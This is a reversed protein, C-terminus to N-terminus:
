FNNIIGVHIKTERLNFPLDNRKGAAFSINLIGQKTELALGAGYGMYSYNKNIIKNRTFGVDNFVFFYSNPAFLYRYEATGVVYENTFINEEDFGRLLKFGGIQFLENQLYYKSAILGYNASLKLVSQKKIAIYKTANVGVRLLYPKTQLSDYLAAYNYGGSKISTITSNQKINKSGFSAMVGFEFGKLKNIRTGITNNFLYEVGISNNTVDLVAPLKKNAIIYNTDPQIIRSSFTSLYVSLKTKASTNFQLGINSAVNLYASDRKYLNFKFNLQAQLAAFYPLAVDVDIRPSQPQIQQWNIGISEGRAFSNQLLLKADVTLLLKGGSQTNNPLFGVIADLKNNRKNTIYLNLIFSSGLMTIDSSKTVQLYPLQQLKKDVEALKSQNYLCNNKLGLYQQLFHNSIAINGYVRISDMRYEIGKNIKISAEIKNSDIVVSDLTSIAFPYGNNLYYEIIKEPQLLFSININNNYAQLLDPPTHRLQLDYKKGVFLYAIITNSTETITDVSAAIYGKLQLKNILQKIYNRCNGNNSFQKKVSIIQQMNVSDTCIIQLTTTQTQAVCSILVGVIFCSIFRM